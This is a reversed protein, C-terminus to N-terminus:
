RLSKKSHENEFIKALIVVQYVFEMYARFLGILGYRYGRSFIFSRIFFWHPRFIAALFGHHRGLRKPVEYNSYNNIKELRQEITPNDLHILSLGNKCPIETIKGDICPRAHIVAPWHAKDKRFFRLQYDPSGIIREGMFMNIRPINFAVSEDSKEISHYLFSRLKEPVLEDADVVLVWLNSASQIAFNRAPECIKCNGKPFTVIKCGYAAAIGVTNDDSEMDCVVIEDFNRVSDLVRELHCAANCTNIVVSIKRYLIERYKIDEAGLFSIYM